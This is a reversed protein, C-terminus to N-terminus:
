LLYELVNCHVNTYVNTKFTQSLVFCMVTMHGSLHCSHALNAGNAGNAGAALPRRAALM